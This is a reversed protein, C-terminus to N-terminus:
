NLEKEIALITPCPYANGAQHCKCDCKSDCSWEECGWCGNNCHSCETSEEGNPHVKHIAKHLEVVARLAQLYRLPNVFKTFAIDKIEKNIEELLEDHTM